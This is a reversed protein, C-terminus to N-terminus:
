LIAATSSDATLASGPTTDSLAKTTFIAYGLVVIAMLTVLVLATWRITTTRDSLSFALVGLIGLEAGIGFLTVLAAATLSRFDAVIVNDGQPIRLLTARSFRVTKGHPPKAETGAPLTVLAIGTVKITVFPFPRDPPPVPSTIEVLESLRVDPPVTERRSADSPRESTPEAQSESTQSDAQTERASVTVRNHIGKLVITGDGPLIPTVDAGIEINGPSVPFPDKADDNHSPYALSGGAPVEFVLRSGNKVTLTANKPVMGRRNSSTAYFIAFILPAAVIIVGCVTMLVTYRDLQVGPLQTSVAGAGTLIAAVATAGTGINTAWSDKFTWSSSAYIPKVPKKGQNPQEPPKPRVSNKRKKPLWGAFLPLGIAAFLLALAGGSIIPWWLYQWTTVFRHVAMMAIAAPAAPHAGYNDVVVLTAALPASPLAFAVTVQQAIAQTSSRCPALRVGPRRIPVHSTVRGHAPVGPPTTVLEYALRSVCDESAQLVVTTTWVGSALQSLIPNNSVASVAHSPSPSPSPSWSSSTSWRPSPPPTDHGHSIPSSVAIAALSVSAVFQFM